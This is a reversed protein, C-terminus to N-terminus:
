ADFRIAATTLDVTPPYPRGFGDPHQLMVLTAARRVTYLGVALETAAIPYPVTCAQSTVRCGRQGEMLAPM